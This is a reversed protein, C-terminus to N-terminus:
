RDLPQASRCKYLFQILLHKELKMLASAGIVVVFLPLSPQFSVSSFVDLPATFVDEIASGDTRRGHLEDVSNVASTIQQKKKEERGDTVLAM